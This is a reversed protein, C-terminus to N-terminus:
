GKKGTTNSHELKRESLATGGCVQLREYCALLTLPQHKSPIASKLIWKERHGQTLSKWSPGLAELKLSHRCCVKSAGFMWGGVSGCCDEIAWSAGRARIHRMSHSKESNITSGLPLLLIILSFSSMLSFPMLV